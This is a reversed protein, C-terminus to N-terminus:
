MQGTSKNDVRYFGNEMQWYVLHLLQHSVKNHLAYIM